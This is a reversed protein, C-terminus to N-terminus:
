SFKRILIDYGRVHLFSLIMYSWIIRIELSIIMAFLLKHLIKLNDSLLQHSLMSHM